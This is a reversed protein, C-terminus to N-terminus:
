STSMMSGLSGLSFGGQIQPIPASHGSRRAVLVWITVVMLILSLGAFVGTLIQYLTSQAMADVAAQECERVAVNSIDTANIVDSVFSEPDGNMTSLTTHTSLRPDSRVHFNSFLNTKLLRVNKLCSSASHFGVQVLNCM